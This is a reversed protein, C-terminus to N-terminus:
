FNRSLASYLAFDPMMDSFADEVIGVTLNWGSEPFRVNAGISLQVTNDGLTSLRSDYYSGAAQIQALLDFRAGLRIGAQVGGFLVSDEQLDELVDGGGLFLVGAHASLTIDAGALTVPDSYGLGVSYDAAGSGRLHTSSGTPLKIGTHLALRRGGVEPELLQYRGYLQLDGIGTNTGDLVFLEDGGGSYRFNLQDRPRVNRQANSAGIVDHWDEVIGDLFGGSAHLLPVTGGIELRRGFGRAVTLALRYTEGDLELSDPGAGAPESHSAITLVSRADWQGSQLTSGGFFDPRGFIATFPNYSGTHFIPEGAPAPVTCFCILSACVWRPTKNM